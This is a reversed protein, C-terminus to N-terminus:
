VAPPAAPAPASAQVADAVGQAAVRDFVADHAQPVEARESATSDLQASSRGPEPADTGQAIPSHVGDAAAQEGVPQGVEAVPSQPESASSISSDAAREAVSPRLSALDVQAVVELKTEAAGEGLDHDLSSASEPRAARPQDTALTAESRLDARAVIDSSNLAASDARANGRTEVSDDAEQEARPDSSEHKEEREVPPEGKESLESRIETLEVPEKPENHGPAQPNGPTGGTAGHSEGEGHALEATVDAAADVLEALPARSEIVPSGSRAPSGGTTGEGPQQSGVYAAPEPAATEPAMAVAADSSMLVRDELHEVVLEDGGAPDDSLLAARGAFQDEIQTEPPQADHPTATM